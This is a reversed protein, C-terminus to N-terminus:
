KSSHQRERTLIEGLGVATRFVAREMGDMVANTFWTGADSEHYVALQELEDDKLSRFTYAFAVLATEGTRDAGAQIETELAALKAQIEKIAAQNEMHLELYSKVLGRVAARLLRPSFESVKEAAAIRELLSRRADGLTTQMARSEQIEALVEPALASGTLRGVKLGVGSGYFTIVEKIKDERFDERIADRIISLPSQRAEFTRVLSSVENRIRPDPFFDMPITSLFAPGFNEMQSRLGSVKLARDILAETDDASVSSAAIPLLITLTFAISVQARTPRKM